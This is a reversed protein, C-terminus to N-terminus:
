EDADSIKNELDEKSIKEVIITGQDGWLIKIPDGPELGIKGAVEPPIIMNINEPDEPIEEFIDEIKYVFQKNEETM